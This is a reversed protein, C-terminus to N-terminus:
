IKLWKKASKFWNPEPDLEALIDIEELVGKEPSVKWIKQKIFGPQNWFDDLYNISPELIVYFRDDRLKSGKAYFMEHFTVLLYPVYNLAM